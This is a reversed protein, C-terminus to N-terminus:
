HLYLRKKIKVSRNTAMKSKTMKHVGPPFNLKANYRFDNLVDKVDVIGIKTSKGGFGCDMKNKGCIRRVIIDMIDENILPSQICSNYSTVCQLTYTYM